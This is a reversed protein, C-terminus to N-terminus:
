FTDVHVMRVMNTESLCIMKIHVTGDFTLQQPIQWKEIDKKNVNLGYDNLTKLLTKYVIGNENVTTGAMDFVMLKTKTFFNKNYTYINFTKGYM